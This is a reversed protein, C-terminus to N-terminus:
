FLTTIKNKYNTTGFNNVNLSNTERNYKPMYKRTFKRIIENFEITKDSMDALIHKRIQFQTESCVKVM